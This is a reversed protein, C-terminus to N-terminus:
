PNGGLASIGSIEAPIEISVSSRSMMSSLLAEIVTANIVSERLSIAPEAEGSIVRAFNELQMQFVPLDTLREGRAGVTVRTRSEERMIFRPSRSEIIEADEVITWAVPLRLQGHSGTVELCQDFVACRSSAVSAVCGGSYEILGYLRHITGTQPNTMGFATARQPVGAAFWGAADVPYCLFDHPVGGGADPRQRWSRRGNDGTSTDPMHFTAHISDVIGVSGDVISERMRVLAPHHRYMFGEVITAGVAHARRWIVQADTARTVLAKECLIFRMGHDLCLEIHSRHDVPWTAIVVGHLAERQLMTALDDYVHSTDIGFSRAWKEANSRTRSMCATFRISGNGRLAAQGHAQSILGCGIMGLRVTPIM